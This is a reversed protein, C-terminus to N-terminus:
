SLTNALVCTVIWMTIADIVSYIIGAVFVRGAFRVERWTFPPFIENSLRRSELLVLRHCTLSFILFLVWCLAFLGWSMWPGMENGAKATEWWAVYFAVLAAGPIALGRM